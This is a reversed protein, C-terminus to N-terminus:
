LSLGVNINEGLAVIQLHHDLIRLAQQTSQSPYKHTLKYCTREPPLESLRQIVFPGSQTITNGVSKAVIAWQRVDHMIAPILGATHVRIHSSAIPDWWRDHWSQYGTGWNMFIEHEPQLTEINVLEMSIREPTSLRLLVMEESFFPELVVTPPTTIERVLFGVDMDRREISELSKTTSETHFLLRISPLHQSLARYLPPLVYMDLSNAASISLSVQPGIAQLIQTERWLTSWREALAVFKEGTATLRISHVGKSRELLQAGLEQELVKLRYSITSQSLHLLNAANSLNETQVIAL